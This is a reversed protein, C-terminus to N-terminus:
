CKFMVENLHKAVSEADTKNDFSQGIALFGTEDATANVPNSLFTVWQFGCGDGNSLATFYKEM